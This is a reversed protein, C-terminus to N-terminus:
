VLLQHRLQYLTSYIVFFRFSFTSACYWCSLFCRLVEGADLFDKDNNYDIFAGISGGYAYSGSSGSAEVKYTNGATIDFAKATTNALRVNQVVLPVVVTDMLQCM